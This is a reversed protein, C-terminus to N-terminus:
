DANALHLGPPSSQPSGDRSESEQVLRWGLLLTLLLMPFGPSFGLQLIFAQSAGLVWIIAIWPTWRPRRRRHVAVAATLVVMAGDHSMAHLSLLLIGPMTIALLAALDAAPDRWWLVSLLLATLGALGYAVAVPFSSGVGFINEAFGVFSISSHGNIEADIRGFDAAVEVWEGVWSWGRLAVGSLYFLVAGLGAGAVVRWQRRLLFLGVMPVAFQPKYLLAALTLGAALSHGDHMLRWAGVVLLLTLATNSGGTVARFMPWFLLAAAMAAPVRGRLWPLMPRALLIAGLLAGAMLLAHLLYSWYYDVGALPQYLFAVQPPYAFFRAVEGEGAPHLERQAEIQRDLSYLTDWDGASAIEGAGYFAPYDGGFADTPTESNRAGLAGFVVALALALLIAIPYAVLRFSGSEARPEGSSNEALRDRVPTAPERHTM